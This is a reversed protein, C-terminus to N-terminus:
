KSEIEELTKEYVEKMTGGLSVAKKAAELAEERRGQEFLVQALNNYAAGRDPHYRVAARFAEEAGKLDGLAYRSNGLGMLGGFSRPWLTLATKYGEEAAQFQRAKELGLVAKLYPEEQIVAPTVNPRLVLLGWYDSRSWTNELTRLPMALKEIKGSRLFVVEEHIDYGVAVAYHWQPYWSLGLNQLIIVPHGASLELFLTDFHSIVYAIRGNRRAGGIMAIQLSGKRSPTYVEHVLMDPTVEIGSWHLVMSLAAPGCQHAEQPFFPVGEIEVRPPVQEQLSARDYPTRGACGGLIAFLLAWLFVTSSSCHYSEQSHM